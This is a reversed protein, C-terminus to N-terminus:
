EAAASQHRVRWAEPDAAWELVETKRWGLKRCGIRFRKPFHGRDELRKRTPASIRSIAEVEPLTLFPSEVKVM